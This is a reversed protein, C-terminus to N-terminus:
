GGKWPADLRIGLECWEDMRSNKCNHDIGKFNNVLNYNM